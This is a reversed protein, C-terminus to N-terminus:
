LFTLGKPTVRTVTTPQASDAARYDEVLKHLAEAAADFGQM